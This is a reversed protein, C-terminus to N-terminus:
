KEDNDLNLDDNKIHMFDECKKSELDYMFAGYTQWHYDTPCTFRYCENKIPCGRGFCKAIDTM